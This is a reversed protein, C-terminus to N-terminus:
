VKLRDGLKSAACQATFFNFSVRNAYVHQLIDTSEGWPFLLAQMGM